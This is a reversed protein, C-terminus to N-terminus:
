APWCWRTPATPAATSSSTTPKSLWSRAAPASPPRAPPAAAWAAKALCTIDPLVGYLEQAGGLSVRFGTIIEDFILLVDNDTCITRLGELFGPEPPIIGADALIPEALVAALQGANRRVVKEVTDLDNFCGVIVSEQSARAIGGLSPM